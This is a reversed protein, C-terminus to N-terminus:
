NRRLLERCEGAELLRKLAEALRAEFLAELLLTEEHALFAHERGDGLAKAGKLLKQLTEPALDGDVSHEQGRLCEHVQWALLDQRVRVADELLQVAIELADGFLQILGQATRIM